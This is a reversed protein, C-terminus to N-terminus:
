VATMQLPTVGWQLDLYLLVCLFSFCFFLSVVTMLLPAYVNGPRAFLYLSVGTLWIFCFDECDSFTTDLRECTYRQDGRCVEADERWCKRQVPTVGRQLCGLSLSAGVAPLRSFCVSLLAVTRMRRVSRTEDLYWFNLNM